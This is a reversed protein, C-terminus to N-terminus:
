IYQIDEHEIQEVKFLSKQIHLGGSYNSIRRGQRIVRHCPLIIPIPNHKNATGVARSFRKGGLGQAIDGYTRLEGYPIKSLEMWVKRQFETGQLDFCLNFQRLEKNFYLLIQKSAQLTHCNDKILFDKNYTKNVIYEIFSDTTTEMRLIRLGDDTAGLGIVGIPTDIFKIYLM